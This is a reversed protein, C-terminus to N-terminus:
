RLEELIEKVDLLPLQLVTELFGTSISAQRMYQQLADFFPTKFKERATAIYEKPSPPLQQFLTKSVSPFEKNFNTSAAHIDGGVDVRDLRRENAYQQLALNVTTPSIGFERAIEKMHNVRAGKGKVQGVTEYARKACEEPFLLAEAFADAFDEAKDNRLEPAHVHGLEHGMWFKFDHINSDLNLYVWTTMSEPLYIHLANEHHDKHGWLVPIIVTNLSVFRGILDRFQVPADQTVGVEERVRRAVQQLYGYENVPQRLTPPCALKDFPLFPVLGSLLVGMHKAREVHEATTKRRGKRRFAIVPEMPDPQEIVLQKFGLGLLMGLKLLKEPRPFDDGSFWKSVAAPTVSIRNSLRAQNFGRKQMAEQVAEVNLIKGMLAVM